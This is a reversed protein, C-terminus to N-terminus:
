AGASRCDTIGSNPNPKGKGPGDDLEPGVEGQETPDVCFLRSPGSAVYQRSRGNAVYVRGRYYIPTAM